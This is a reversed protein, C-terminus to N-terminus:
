EHTETPPIKSYDLRAWEEQLREQHKWAIRQWPQNGLDEPVKALTVLAAIIARDASDWIDALTPKM